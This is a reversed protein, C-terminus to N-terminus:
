GFKIPQVSYSQSFRQFRNVMIRALYQCFFLRGAYIDKNGASYNNKVNKLILCMTNFRAFREM